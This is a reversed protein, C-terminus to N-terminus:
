AEFRCKVRLPASFHLVRLSRGENKEGRGGRGGRSAQLLVGLACHVIPFPILIVTKGSETNASASRLCVSQSDDAPVPAPDRRCITSLTRFRNGGAAGRGKGAARPYRQACLSFRKRTGPERSREATGGGGRVDTGPKGQFSAGRSAGGPAAATTRGASIRDNESCIGPKCYVVGGRTGPRAAGADARWGRREASPRGYATLIGSFRATARGRRVM